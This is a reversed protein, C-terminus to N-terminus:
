SASAARCPPPWVSSSIWTPAGAAPSITAARRAASRLVGAGARAADAVTGRGARGHDSGAEALARGRRGAAAHGGPDALRGAVADLVRRAIGPGIGPLLQLVRFAAVQDRPNEAWRLVALVDKVHAAEFFRLGGFKVYPINRRALELELAASHGATRFLVAQDRLAMGAERNALVEIAVQRAQALEDRVMVLRPAQASRRTSFLEKRYGERALGIM